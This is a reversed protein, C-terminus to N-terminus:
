AKVIEYGRKTSVVDIRKQHRKIRQVRRICYKIWKPFYDMVFQKIKMIWLSKKIEKEDPQSIGNKRRVEISELYTDKLKISSVGDKSILAILINSDAFQKGAGHTKLLFDYDATIKLETDFPYQTLLKRSAFVSQHSFPMREEILEPCKRFYYYEGYEEEMADGYILDIGSYDRGEFVNKLVDCDFFVDGANMFIVYDGNAEKVAINMADYLGGDKGTILKFGLGRKKAIDKALGIRELTTDTSGGDKIIYEFDEYTQSLVSILTDVINKEENFCVTVVSIM